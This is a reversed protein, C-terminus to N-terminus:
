QPLEKEDGSALRNLILGNFSEGGSSVFLWGLQILCFGCVAIKWSFGKFWSWEATLPGAYGCGPASQFCGIQFIIGHPNAVTHQHSGQVAIRDAQNTIGQRCQRCIIPEGRDSTKVIPKGEVIPALDKNNQKETSQRLCDNVNSEVPETM